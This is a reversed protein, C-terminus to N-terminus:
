RARGGRSKFGRINTLANSSEKFELSLARSIIAARYARSVYQKENKEKRGKECEQDSLAPREKSIIQMVRADDCGDWLAANTRPLYAACYRSVTMTGAHYATDPYRYIARCASYSIDERAVFKGFAVKMKVNPYKRWMAIITKDWEAIAYAEEAERRAELMWDPITKM